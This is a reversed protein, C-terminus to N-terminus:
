IDNGTANLILTAVARSLNGDVDVYENFDKGKLHPPLGVTVASKYWVVDLHNLEIAQLTMDRCNLIDYPLLTSLNEPNRVYCVLPDPGEAIEYGSIAAMRQNIQLDTLNM